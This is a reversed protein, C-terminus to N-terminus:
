EGCGKWGLTLVDSMCNLLVNVEKNEMQVVAVLCGVLFMVSGAAMAIILKM